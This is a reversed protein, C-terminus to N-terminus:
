LNRCRVTSTLLRRRYQQLEKRKESDPEYTPHAPDAPDFIRREADPDPDRNRYVATNTYELDRRGARALITIQISAIDARDAASVPTDIKTGDKRLYVFNLADVSEAVPQAGGGWVARGLTTGSLSYRIQENPDNAADVLLGDEDVDVTFQLTSSTAELIGFSPSSAPNFGAMRLDKCMIDMAARLEQQMSAVDDQVVYVKQQTAFTRYVAVMVLGTLALAVLLEVLTFGNEKRIM